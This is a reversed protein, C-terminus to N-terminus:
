RGNGLVLWIWVGYFTTTVVGIVIAWVAAWRGKRRGNRTRILGAIGFPIGLVGSCALALVFAAISIQDTQPEPSMPAWGRAGYHYPVPQPYPGPEHHTTAEVYGDYPQTRVPERYAPEHYAPEHDPEPRAPPADRRASWDTEQGWEDEYPLDYTTEGTYSSTTPRGGDGGSPGPRARAADQRELDGDLAARASPDLLIDRARNIRTMAAPDAGAGARDPHHQKALERHVARIVAPSADRAVHLEAYADFVEATM